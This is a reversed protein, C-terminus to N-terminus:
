SSIWNSGNYFVPCNVAGGGTLTGLYTPATADTVFATDGLTGAPLTAVTYSTLRNITTKNVKEVVGTSTNRTLIDYAGASTIPTISIGVVGNFTPNYKEGGFFLRCGYNLATLLDGELGGSNSTLKEKKAYIISTSTNFFDSYNGANTTGINGNIIFTGNSEFGFLGTADLCLINEFINNGTAQYFSYIGFSCNRFTNNGTSTHFCDSDFIVNGFVNNATNGLFAGNKFKTVLGLYDVFRVSSAHCFNGILSFDSNQPVTFKYVGNSFSEETIVANTFGQLYIKATKLNTFKQGLLDEIIIKGQNNDKNTGIVVWDSYGGAMLTVSSGILNSLEFGGQVVTQGAITQGTFGLVNVKGGGSFKSLTIPVGVPCELYGAGIKPLTITIDSSNVCELYGMRDIGLSDSASVKYTAMKSMLRLPMWTDYPSNSSGVTNNFNNVELAAGFASGAIYSKSNIVDNYTGFDPFKSYTRFGRYNGNYTIASNGDDIRTDGIKLYTDLDNSEIGTQDSNYIAIHGLPPADIITGLKHTINSTGDFYIHHDTTGETDTHYLGIAGIRSTLTATLAINCIAKNPYTTNLFANVQPSYFTIHNLPENGSAKLHIGARGKECTGTATVTKGTTNTQVKFITSSVIESVSHVRNLIDGHTGTVGNLQVLDCVDLQHTTTTTITTESGVTIASIVSSKESGTNPDLYCYTKNWVSNGSSCTVLEKNNTILLGNRVNYMLVMDSSMQQANYLEIAKKTVITFNDSSTGDVFVRNIGGMGFGLQNHAGVKIAIEFGKLGLDEIFVNSLAKLGSDVGESDVENAVLGMIGSTAAVIRTGGNLTFNLDPCNANFNFKPAVGKISVGDKLRISSNITYLGTSLRLVGGGSSHLANITRQIQEQNDGDIAPLFIENSNRRFYESGFQFYIIGDVTPTGSVKSLTIEEGTYQDLIGYLTDEKRNALSLNENSNIFTKSVVVAGTQGNVSLVVNNERPVVTFDGIATQLNGSGYTGAVGNFIFVNGDTVDFIRLGDGSSQLVYPPTKANIFASITAGSLTAITIVQNSPNTSVTNFNIAQSTIFEFNSETISTGGVGYNGKGINKLEYVDIRQLNAGSYVFDKFGLIQDQTITFNPLANIRTSINAPNSNLNQSVYQFVKKNDTLDLISVKKTIGSQVIPLVEVGTLANAPNLLSIISDAM